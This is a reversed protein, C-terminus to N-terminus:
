AKDCGELCPSSIFIKDPTDCDCTPSLNILITCYGSRGMPSAGYNYITAEQFIIKKQKYQVKSSLKAVKSM